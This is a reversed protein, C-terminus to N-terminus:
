SDRRHKPHSSGLDPSRCTQPARYGVHIGDTRQSTGSYPTTPFRASTAPASQLRKLRVLPLEHIVVRTLGTDNLEVRFLPTFRRAAFADNGLYIEVATVDDPVRVEPTNFPVGLRAFSKGSLTTCLVRNKDGAATVVYPLTSLRSASDTVVRDGAKGGEANEDKQAALFEYRVKRGATYAVHQRHHDESVVATAIPGQRNQPQTVTLM